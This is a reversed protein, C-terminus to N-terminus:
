NTFSPKISWKSKTDMNSINIRNGHMHFSMTYIDYKYMRWYNNKKIKRLSFPSLLHNPKGCLCHYKTTRCKNGTDIYEHEYNCLIGKFNNKSFKFISFKKPSVNPNCMKSCQWKKSSCGISHLVTKVKSISKHNFKTKGLKSETFRFNLTKM